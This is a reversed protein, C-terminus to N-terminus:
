EIYRDKYRDKFTNLYLQLERLRYQMYKKSVIALLLQLTRIFEIASYLIWVIDVCYRCLLNLFDSHGHFTIVRM